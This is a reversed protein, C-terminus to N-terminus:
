PGGGIPRFLNLLCRSAAHRQLIPSVGPAPHELGARPRPRVPQRHQLDHPHPFEAARAARPISAKFHIAARSLPPSRATGRRKVSVGPSSVSLNPGSGAEGVVHDRPPDTLTMKCGNRGGLAVRIAEFVRRTIPSTMSPSNACTFKQVYGLRDLIGPRLGRTLPDPVVMGGRAQLAHNVEASVKM